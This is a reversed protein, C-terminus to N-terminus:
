SLSKEIIEILVTIDDGTLITGTALYPQWGGNQYFMQGQHYKDVSIYIADGAGTPWSIEIHRIKNGFTADFEIKKM